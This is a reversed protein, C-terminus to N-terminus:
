HRQTLQGNGSQHDGSLPRDGQSVPIREIEPLEPFSLDAIEQKIREAM